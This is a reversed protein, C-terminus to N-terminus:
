KVLDLNGNIIPQTCEMEDRLFALKEHTPIPNLFFIRKGYYFAFMIEAFTGGGIYNPIGNKELNVVLIADSNKIKNFHEITLQPKINKTHGDSEKLRQADDYNNLNYRIISAPIVVEHGREKLGKEIEKMKEPFNASGCIAIRM